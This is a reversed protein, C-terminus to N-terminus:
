VGAERFKEMAESHAMDFDNRYTSVGGMLTNMRVACVYAEHRDTTRLGGPMVWGAPMWGHREAWIVKAEGVEINRHDESPKSKAEGIAPIADSEMMLRQMEAKLAPIGICTENLPIIGKANADTFVIQNM